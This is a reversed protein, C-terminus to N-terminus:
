KPFTDPIHLVGDIIMPSYISNDIEMLTNDYVKDLSYTKTKDYVDFWSSSGTSITIENLSYDTSIQTILDYEDYIRNLDNLATGKLIPGVVFIVAIVTVLIVVTLWLNNVKDLAEKLKSMIKVLIHAALM